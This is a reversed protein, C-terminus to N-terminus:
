KKRSRNNTRNRELANLDYQLKKTEANRNRGIIIGGYQEKQIPKKAGCINKYQCGDFNICAEGNWVPQKNEELKCCIEHM